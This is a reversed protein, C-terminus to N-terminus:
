NSKKFKGTWDRKQEKHKRLRNKCQIYLDDDICRIDETLYRHVTTKGICVNDAIEQVSMNYDLLYEACKLILEEKSM